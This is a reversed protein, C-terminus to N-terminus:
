RGWAQKARVGFPDPTDARPLLRGERRLRSAIRAAPSGGRILDSHEAVAALFAARDGPHDRLLSELVLHRHLRDPDDLPGHYISSTVLDWTALDEM